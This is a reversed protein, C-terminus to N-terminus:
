VIFFCKSLLRTLIIIIIIIIISSMFKEKPNLILLIDM